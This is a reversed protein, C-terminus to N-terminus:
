LSIVCRWMRGLYEGGGFSFVDGGEWDEGQLYRQAGTCHCPPSVFISRCKVLFGRLIVLLYEDLGKLFRIIKQLLPEIWFVKQSTGLHKLGDFISPSRVLPGRYYTAVGILYEPKPTRETPGTPSKKSEVSGTQYQKFIVQGVHLSSFDTDKSTWCKFSLFFCPQPYDDLFVFAAM